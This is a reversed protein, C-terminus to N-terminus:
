VGEEFAASLQWGWCRWGSALYCRVVPMALGVVLTVRSVQRLSWKQKRQVALMPLWHNPLLAHWLSLLLTGILIETM